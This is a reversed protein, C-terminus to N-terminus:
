CTKGNPFRIERQLAVRSEWDAAGCNKECRQMFVLRILWIGKRDLKVTAKGDKDTTLMQTAHMDCDRNDAFVSKKKGAAQPLIHDIEFPMSVIEQPM